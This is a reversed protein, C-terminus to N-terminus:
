AAASPRERMRAYWGGINALDPNIPQGARAFFDVFAFLLIDALTLRDGCIFPRGDMLGDLWNLREQAIQKLDSAAQPICHIRSEFM